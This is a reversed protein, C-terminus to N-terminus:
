VLLDLHVIIADEKVLDGSLSKKRAQPSIFLDRMTQLSCQLPGLTPSLKVKMGAWHCCPSDSPLPPCHHVATTHSPYQSQNPPALLHSLYKYTFNSLNQIDNNYLM